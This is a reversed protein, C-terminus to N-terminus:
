RITAAARRAAMWRERRWRSTNVAARTTIWVLQAGWLGIMGLQM